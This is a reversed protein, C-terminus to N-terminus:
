IKLRIHIKQLWGTIIVVVLAFLLSKALGALGTLLSDPLLQQLPYVVPYLLGPVLYCTLTSQGAPMIISAWKSYHLVDAIIFIVLFVVMSIGACIATWSPTAMIKSIGGYPRIAFGYVIYLAALLVVILEFIEIRDRDRMRLYILTILVGSMVLVHNSASVILLLRPLPIGDGAVELLNMANLIVWAMIIIWMRNKSFLYIGACVLYAWGILGLIGWWHPRMWQPDDPTGGRYTVALLLLIAIGAAQFLWVPIRGFIKKSEYNNWILFFAVIMLIGWISTLNHPVQNNFNEKNVMFFGMLVLALTRKLIHFLISYTSDGRTMRSGIAFPISLGVIFLFAPFVIDSLGMGDENASAHELWGPVSHLTWLDNVFVMLLMTVARFIDISLIRKTM